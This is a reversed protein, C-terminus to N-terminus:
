PLHERLTVAAVRAARRNSGPDDMRQPRLRVLSRRRASSATPWVIWVRGLARGSDLGVLRGRRRVVRRGIHEDVVNWQRFRRPGGGLRASREQLPDRVARGDAARQVLHLRRRCRRGPIARRRRAAQVEGARSRRRPGSGRTDLPRDLGSRLCPSLRREPAHITPRGGATTSQRAEPGDLFWATSPATPPTFTM